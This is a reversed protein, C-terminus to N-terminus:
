WETEMKNLSNELSFEKSANESVEEIRVLFGEVGKNLLERLTGEKHNFRIGM